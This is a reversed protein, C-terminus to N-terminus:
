RTALIFLRPFPLLVTGDPYISYAKSLAEEYQALFDQQEAENLPQLFPRLGTGKFWEVIARAGGQLPHYYVTRWIDLRSTQHRLTSYYWEASQRDIRQHAHALKEVWPGNKAMERMLRHAPEEFNDPMQVALTGGKALKNILKPFLTAHDPVWQLAANALLVDFPGENSWNAIDALEFQVQPLRKRAVEIMNESSDMGIVKAMPFKNLLLETSNGPGCGIDAAQRVSTTPIPALLDFIPRNREAEFKSYQQASWSM